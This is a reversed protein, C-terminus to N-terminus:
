PGICVIKSPRGIPSGLRVNDDVLPLNGNNYSVFSLLRQMGNSGFFAENYDEGLGSADYMQNDIVIGPKEEGAPGFRILKM